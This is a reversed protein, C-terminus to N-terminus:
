ILELERSRKKAAKREMKQKKREEKAKYTDAIFSVQEYIMKLMELHPDGLAAPPLAALGDMAETIQPLVLPPPPPSPTSPDNAPFVPVPESSPPSLPPTSTGTTTVTVEVEESGSDNGRAGAEKEEEALFPGRTPRRGTKPKTAKEKENTPSVKQRKQRGRLNIEPDEAEEEEEEARKRKRGGHRLKSQAKPKPEVKLQQRVKSPDPIKSLALRKTKRQSTRPPTPPPITIIIRKSKKKVPEHAVDPQEDDPERQKGEETEEVDIEQGKEDEELKQEASTRPTDQAGLFAGIDNFSQSRLMKGRGQDQGESQQAMQSGAQTVPQQVPDEETDECIEEKQAEGGESVLLEMPIGAVFGKATIKKDTAKNDELNPEEEMAEAGGEEQLDMKEKLLAFRLRSVMQQKEGVPKLGRKKIETRLERETLDDPAKVTGPKTMESFAFCL